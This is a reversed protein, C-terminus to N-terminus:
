KPDVPCRTRQRRSRGGFAALCLLGAACGPTPIFTIAADNALDSSQPVPFNNAGNRMFYSFRSGTQRDALASATFSVQGGNYIFSFIHVGWLDGNVDTNVDSANVIASGSAFSRHGPAALSLPQISWSGVSPNGNAPSQDSILGFRFNGILGSTQDGQYSGFADPDRARDIGGAAQSDTLDALRMNSPAAASHQTQFDILATNLGRSGITDANLDAIRYRLEVFCLQGPVANVVNGALTQPRATERTNQSGGIDSLVYSGEVGTRERGVLFLDLRFNQAAATSACAALGLSAVCKSNM